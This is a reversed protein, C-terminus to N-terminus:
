RGGRLGSPETPSPVSPVSAIELLGGSREPSLRPVGDPGISYWYLSDTSWVQERDFTLHGLLGHREVGPLAMSVAQRTPSGAAAARALAEILMWTAEYAPLALPGPEVGNSVGRYAVVFADGDPLDPPFPWPTVFTTAQAAHGAVAVFDSAALAPGGLIQGSWGERRLGAVVEGARVPDLDCLIVAPDRALVDEQWDAADASVRAFRWAPDEGEWERVLSQLSAGLPGGQGVLVIGGSAPGPPLSAGALEAARELLADALLEASPGLRYLVGQHQSLRPHLIAPAVLPLRAQAYAGAAARTTEERFHGIAALVDPDVSLKRAQEVAMTSQAGDDYAVLELAYGAVGGARNVERLALRAAYIVDYGTSRYRGEFPAV